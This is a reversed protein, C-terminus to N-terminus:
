AADKFSYESPLFSMVVDSLGLLPTFTTYILGGIGSGDTSTIRMMAENYVDMPSEEDFWVGDQKTGEFSKRGQKYCKFGLISNGGLKYKVIVTDVANAVGGAKPTIKVISDRPIIGSGIDQPPGLLTLQVIDRTTESSDGAAWFKTPRDFRRGPWWDPYNGTLHLATKYGGALTKGTRNGAMLLLESYDKSAEFFEMHKHYLERRFRGEDPYLTSAYNYKRRERHAELWVLIERKTEINLKSVAEPTLGEIDSFGAM